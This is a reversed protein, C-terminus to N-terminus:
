VACQREVRLRVARFHEASAGPRRSLVGIHRFAESCRCGLM